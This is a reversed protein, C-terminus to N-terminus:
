NCWKFDILSWALDITWRLDNKNTTENENDANKARQRICEERWKKLKAGKTVNVNVEGETSKVKKKFKAENPLCCRTRPAHSQRRRLSIAVDRSSGLSCNWTFSSHDYISQNISTLTIEENKADWHWRVMAPSRHNISSQHHLLRDITLVIFLLLSCDDDVADDDDDNNSSDVFSSTLAVTDHQRITTTQKSNVINNHINQLTTAFDLLVFEFSTFKNVFNLYVIM